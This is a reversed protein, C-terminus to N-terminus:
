GGEGSRKEKEDKKERKEREGTKRGVELDYRLQGARECSFTFNIKASEAESGMPVDYGRHPKKRTLLKSATVGEREVVRESTREM